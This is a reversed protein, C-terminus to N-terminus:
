INMLVDDYFWNKWLRLFSAAVFRFQNKGGKLGPYVSRTSLLTPDLQPRVGESWVMHDCMRNFFGTTSLGLGPEM